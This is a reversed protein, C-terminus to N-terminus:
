STQEFRQTVWELYDPAYWDDDEIFVIHTGTVRPLAAELNLNLTTAPDNHKRSRHILDVHELGSFIDAPAKVFGDDVVIWQHFRRTQRAMFRSCLRLTHSRDSTPTILSLRFPTENLMSRNGHTM